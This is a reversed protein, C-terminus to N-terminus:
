MKAREVRGFSATEKDFLLIFFHDGYVLKVLDIKYELTRTIGRITRSFVIIDNVQVECCLGTFRVVLIKHQSDRFLIFAASLWKTDGGRILFSDYLKAIPYLM